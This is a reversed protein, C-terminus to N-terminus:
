QFQEKIKKAFLKRFIPRRPVNNIDHALFALILQLGVLTCLGSLMVTGASATQGLKSSEYWHYGGFISGFLFLLVGLPLEISALSMDRLYYSYFTRKFTNRVHKCLFEGIIQSIKLGSVEDGYKSDMPIDAVVARLSYLRFLIDTEFFYRNSIKHLPLHRIVNAHIATFGNTPDFLDWYGTSVKSMLSLVSNGFLRLLPMNGIEDLDFFRNGKTYDAEGAIIPAVFQGILTPDMQGDGDVKVVVDAGDEVAARYGAMTAGGVGLNRENFVVKVRPDQVHEQVYLGSQQPCRDDVVYILSVEPGIRAIVDLVHAKVKYSPIVVSINM